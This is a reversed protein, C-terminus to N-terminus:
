FSKVQMKDMCRIYENKLQKVEMEREDASLKAIEKNVVKALQKMWNKM